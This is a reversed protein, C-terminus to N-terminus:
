QLQLEVTIPYHDSPYVGDYTTTVVQYKEVDFGSKSIMFYDIPKNSLNNGWNQYTACNINEAIEAQYKADNFNQTANKYTESQEDANFDGMIVAPLGGFEKIKDLVVQIGKIRAEDSIHDLHTNFIVFQKQSTKDALIVYSCIRYCAAGWDKSMVEPTESLWFSGKDVLDYLEANYFIPCSEALYSNDRYTVVSDYTPLSKCLYSYQWKNTEQFGIISPNEQEINQMILDARYFWSKKFFDTPSWCRVNSSMIKIEDTQVSIEPTFETQKKLYGPFYFCIVASAAIIIALVFAFVGTLFKKLNKM